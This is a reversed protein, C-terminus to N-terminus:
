KESVFTSGTGLTSFDQQKLFFLHHNIKQKELDFIDKETIAFDLELIQM